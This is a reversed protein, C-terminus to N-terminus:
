LAHLLLDEDEAEQLDHHGRDDNSRRGVQQEAHRREVREDDARGEGQRRGGDDELDEIFGALDVRLFAAVRDPDQDELVDRDDRDQQHYRQKGRGVAVHRQQQRLRRDVGRQQDADKVDDPAIEQAPYELDNERGIRLLDVDAQDQQGYDARRVEGVFQAERIRQPSEDGAHQDRVRDVLVLNLG